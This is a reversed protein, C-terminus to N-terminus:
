GEFKAYWTAQVHYKQSCNKLHVLPTNGEFLSVVAGMDNVPLHEQYQRIIGGWVQKKNKIKMKIKDSM